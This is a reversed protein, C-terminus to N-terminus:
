PARELAEKVDAFQYLQPVMFGFQFVIRPAGGDIVGTGHPIESPFFGWLSREPVEISRGSIVPNGSANERAVMVNCRLHKTRTQAHYPYRDLHPHISAGPQLLSVIWGLQPDVPCGSLRFQEVIRGGIDTILTVCHDTGWIKARYRGPGRPNAQLVGKDLYELALGQLEDQERDSIFDPTTVVDFMGM